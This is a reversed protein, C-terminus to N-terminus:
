VAVIPIRGGGNVLMGAHLDHASIPSGFVDLSDLVACRIGDWDRISPM